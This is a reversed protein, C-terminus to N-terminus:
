REKFAKAIQDQLPKILYSLATRETTKIQVDAPMGPVLQLKGMRLLESDPLVLRALYYSTNQQSERTLDAAVVKVTANFEPTTRQNFATFRIFAVQGARVHDIDQPAIRAEIVLKDAEPVILMVVESQNIVGGVTHVALQHVVGDQPSRIEIRKLQDEATVKREVLEADKGQAERLDKVIETRLDQDIQLIQLEIEATKGKAQAMQAGLQGREGELRAFDRRTTTMRNTTTLQRGELKELGDLERRVLDVERSKGSHQGQLGRIEEKLQAIRESLQAKQSTRGLRRSEFLSQEGAIIQAVESERERGLLLPPLVIRVAVDREAHLRAQRMALEDLQKTIIQLNARTITEDLRVLLDGTRVKDGDRVRVEGVIGGTPHQVKKVNTEVVVTGNALVAGALETTAAWGGIGVVVLCAMAIGVAMYGWISDAPDTVGIRREHTAASTTSNPARFTTARRRYRIVCLAFFLVVIEIAILALTDRSLPLAHQWAVVAEFWQILKQLLAQQDILGPAPSGADLWIAM